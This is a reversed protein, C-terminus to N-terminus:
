IMRLHKIGLNYLTCSLTSIMKQVILPDKLFNWYKPWRICLALVNSFVRIRPFISPLFLLPSLPRSPQIADSVSYILTQAAGTSLSPCPLRTLHLGHPQLSDSVILSHFVAFIKPIFFKRGFVHSKRTVWITFFRNAM